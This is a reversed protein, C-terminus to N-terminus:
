KALQPNVIVYGDLNNVYVIRFLHLPLLGDAPREINRLLGVTLRDLKIGGVTLNDLSATEVSINGANSAATMIQESIKIQTVLKRCGSAYLFLNSAGSDLALKVSTSGITLGVLMRGGEIQMPIHNGKLSTAQDDMMRINKSEFDIAFNFQRFFNLGLIGSLRSDISQLVPLDTWYVKVDTASQQGMTIHSISGQPIKITGTPTDVETYATPELKLRRATEATLTTTTAGTDVLFELTEGDDIRVPVIIRGNARLRFRVTDAPTEARLCNFLVLIQTVLITILYINRKM